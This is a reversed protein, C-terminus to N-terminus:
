YCRSVSRGYADVVRTCRPGSAAGAAYARRTTRRAVGAYSGPTAPRGIIAQATLMRFGGNTAPAEGILFAAAAVTIALPWKVFVSAPSM